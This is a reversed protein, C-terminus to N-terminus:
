PTSPPRAPVGLDYRVINDNTSVRSDFLISATVKEDVLAALQATTLEPMRDGDKNIVLSTGYPNRDDTVVWRGSPLQQFKVDLKSMGSTGPILWAEDQQNFKGYSEVFKEAVVGLNQDLTKGNANQPMPTYLYTWHTENVNRGNTKADKTAAAIAKEPSMGAGLYFTAKDRLYETVDSVRTEEDFNDTFLSATVSRAASSIVSAQQESLSPTPNNVNRIAWSLARAKASAGSPDDNVFGSDIVHSALEYVRRSHDKLNLAQPAIDKSDLFVSFGEIAEQPVPTEESATAYKSLKAIGADAIQSLDRDVMANKRMEDLRTRRYIIPDGGSASTAKEHILNTAAREVEDKTRSYSLTDTETTGDAKTYTLPAKVNVDGLTYGLGSDIASAITASLANDNAGQFEVKKQEVGARIASNTINEITSKIGGQMSDLTARAEPAADQYARIESSIATLKGIDNGADQIATSFRNLTAMRKESVIREAETKATNIIAARKTPDKIFTNAYEVAKEDGLMSMAQIGSEAVTQPDVGGKTATAMAAAIDDASRAGFVADTLNLTLADREQKQFKERRSVVAQTLPGVLEDYMRTAYIESANEPLQGRIVDAAIEEPTRGDQIALDGNEIESKLRAEITKAARTASGLTIAQDQKDAENQLKLRAAFDADRERRLREAEFQQERNIATGLNALSGAASITQLFEGALLAGSSQYNPTVLGPTQISETIGIVPAQQPRQRVASETARGQELYSM